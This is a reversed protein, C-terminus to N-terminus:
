EKINVGNGSVTGGKKTFTGMTYKDVGIDNGTITGNYMTFNGPSFVGTYNGTITGGHMEFTAMQHINIGIGESTIGNRNNKITVGSHMTLSFSADTNVLVGPYLANSEGDLTLTGSMGKMGLTLSGGTSSTASFFSGIHSTDRYIRVDEEAVLIVPVDTPISIFSDVELDNNILFLFSRYEPPSTGPISQPIYSPYVLSITLCSVLENWSNVEVANHMVITESKKQGAKVEIQEIGMLSLNGGQGGVYIPEYGKITVNWTGPIVDFNASGIGKEFRKEITGGPGRLTVVYNFNGFSSNDFEWRESGTNGWVLTLNGSNGTWPSFCTTLILVVFVALLSYSIIRKM